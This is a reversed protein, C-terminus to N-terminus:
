KKDEPVLTLLNSTIAEKYFDENVRAEKIVSESTHKRSFYNGIFAIVFFITCLWGIFYISALGIIIGGFFIGRLNAQKMAYEALPSTEQFLYGAKDVNIKTKIEKNNLLKVFDKHSLNLGNSTM